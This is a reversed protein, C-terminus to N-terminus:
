ATPAHTSPGTSVRPRRRAHYLRRTGGALSESAIVDYWRRLEREFVDVDYDDYLDDKNRLLKVVMPDDKTVFEIVLDGGLSALWEVFAPVPVHAGITMHHILALALVLDPRGREELAARERGRWGTASSPNQLNMVLPLIRERAEGELSAYLRDVALADGDMAVVLECSEAAVRSYEGTNAGLDWVLERPRDLVARRVFAVKRAHNADDYGHSDAYDSWESRRSRPALKGVLRTLREVNAVILEKHFGADRLGKKVDQKTDSYRDALLAHLVAHTMVGPRLRDRWSFLAKADRPAIGDLDGRLWARFDVGKYAALMLPYLQLECFQRYGAWPEGSRLRTFSGVDVFVPRAGHWQVNYPTADKLILDEVLADRMLELQLLAARRLMGFPWEYVYSLFPVREHRLVLDWPEAWSPDSFESPDVVTTAVVRGSEVWRAFARTSSLREWDARGAPSLGRYIRGGDAFVRSARDRFSGPDFRPSCADRAPNV